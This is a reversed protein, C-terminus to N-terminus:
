PGLQQTVEETLDFTEVASIVLPTGNLTKGSVDLVVACDHAAACFATAQQIDSIAKARAEPSDSAPPHVLLLKDTDVVGVLEKLTAASFKRLSLLNPGASARPRAITAGAAVAQLDPPAPTGTPSAQPMPAARQPPLSPLPALKLDPQFGFNGGKSANGSSTDTRMHFMLVVLFLLGIIFLAVLLHQKRFKGV